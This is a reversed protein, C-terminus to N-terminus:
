AGSDAPGPGGASVEACVPMALRAGSSGGGIAVPLADFKALLAHLDDVWVEYEPQSGDFSVDSAGCNRRDHIFVRYGAAALKEALRRVNQWRAARGRAVACDM